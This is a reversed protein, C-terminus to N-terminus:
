SCKFIRVQEDRKEHIKQIMDETESDFDSVISSTLKFLAALKDERDLIDAKMEEIESSLKAVLDEIDLLSHASGLTIVIIMMIVIYLNFSTIISLSVKDLSIFCVEKQIM